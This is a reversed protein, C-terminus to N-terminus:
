PEKNRLLIKISRKITKRIIEVDRVSIKYKRAITRNPIGNLNDEFVRCLFPDKKELATCCEEIFKKSMYYNSEDFPDNFPVIFESLPNKRYLLIEDEASVEGDDDEDWQPLPVTKIEQRFTRSINWKILLLVYNSLQAQVMTIIKGNINVSFRPNTTFANLVTVIELIIVKADSVYDQAELCGTQGLRARMLLKKESYGLWKLNNKTNTLFDVLVKRKASSQSQFCLTGSQGIQKKM